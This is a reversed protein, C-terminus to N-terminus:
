RLRLVPRAADSELELVWVENAGARRGVMGTLWSPLGGNEWEACIYPGPRVIARMGAADVADLFRGLAGPDAYRGPEPEHLNWPVYTEVYNLGMARLM